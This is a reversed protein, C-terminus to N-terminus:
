PLGPYAAPPLSSPVVAVPGHAHNLVAHRVSGPGQRGPHQAHRGIVVLDARASLGVLARGPHGHVVDQSVPVDPYKERWENLLGELHRAAEAEFAHPDEGTFTDGARSIDGQPTRWAHIALLSARRLSAEEFAFTLSDACHDLDGIGIGVQRHTAATEDRVVVVPCSAHSAAYRSISGLVMATFAGVGRSGLVLMMAGAGSETIAQAPQGSLQDTDILVGPAMKAAREAAAALARDRDKLLVDTVTDYNTPGARSVMRPLLSAASVIRLPSSRLAAERVAWDVARLSEESGDTGAVIPKAAM